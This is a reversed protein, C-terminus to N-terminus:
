GFSGGEPPLANVERGSDWSIGEDPRDVPHAIDIAAVQSSLRVASHRVFANVLGDLGPICLIEVWADGTRHAVEATIAGPQVIAWAGVGPEAYVVTGEAIQAPGM